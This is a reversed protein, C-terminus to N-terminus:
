DTYFATQIPDTQFSIDLYLIELESCIIKYLEWCVFSYTGFFDAHTVKGVKYFSYGVRIPGSVGFPQGRGCRM